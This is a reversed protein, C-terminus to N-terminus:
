RDNSSRTGECTHFENKVVAFWKDNQFSVDRINCFKGQKYRKIQVLFFSKNMRVQDAISVIKNEVIVGNRMDQIQSLIHVASSHFILLKNVYETICIM